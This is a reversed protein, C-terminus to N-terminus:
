NKGLKDLSESLFRYTDIFTLCGYTISIYEENTKPIKDFKVKDNKKDILRKFFLHWDYNSFNHFRFPIFYSQKQTVNISCTNHAAGRNQDTLHCHDWIKDFEIFKECFRCNSKIRYDQYDEETMIINKMTNKYYFAKKNELKVIEDM